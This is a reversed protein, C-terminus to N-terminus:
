VARRTLFDINAGSRGTAVLRVTHTGASITSLGFNTTQTAWSSWGGTPAFTLTTARVGDIWLDLTPRDLRRERLPLGLRVFRGQRRERDV